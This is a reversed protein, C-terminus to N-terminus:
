DVNDADKYMVRQRRNQIWDELGDDTMARSADFRDVSTIEDLPKRWRKYPKAAPPGFLFIDLVAMDDPMGLLPKM